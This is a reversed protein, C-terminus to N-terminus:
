AAKGKEREALGEAHADLAKVLMSESPDEVHASAPLRESGLRGAARCEDLIQQRLQVTMYPNYHRM